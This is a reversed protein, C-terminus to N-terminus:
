TSWIGNNGELSYLITQIYKWFCPTWVNAARGGLSKSCTSACQVFCFIHSCVIDPRHSLIHLDTVISPGLKGVSPLESPFIPIGASRQLRGLSKGSFISSRGSQAIQSLTAILIEDHVEMKALLGTTVNSPNGQKKSSGSWLTIYGTYGIPCVWANSDSRTWFESTRRIM